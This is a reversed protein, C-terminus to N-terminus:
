WGMQFGVAIGSVTLLSMGLEQMGVIVTPMELSRPLLGLVARLLLVGFAAGALWPVLDIAALGVVLSLAAAHTLYVPARGAPVGRALRIRARVYIIASTAKLALLLWLLFAPTMRWGGCLAIAPALAGLANAGCIEALLSRSQKLLDYRLQVIAFPVALLLPLWFPHATTLWAILLATLASAGYLAVFREAWVTRPYRRGRQQDGLALKLPQRMLFAGLAALGLWVGAVSPAVWLGLVIPAGLFGWGGHEVPLAIPRLRVPGTTAEAM